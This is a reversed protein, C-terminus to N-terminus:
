VIMFPHNLPDPKVSKGNNVSTVFFPWLAFMISLSSVLFSCPLYYVTYINMKYVHHINELIM